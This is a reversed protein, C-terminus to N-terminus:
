EVKPYVSEIKKEIEGQISGPMKMNKAFAWKGADEFYMKMRYMINVLRIKIKAEEKAVVVEIPYAAAHAIGPCTLKKRSKDSGAKVIDFSKSAVKASSVGLIAVNENTLNLTYQHKLQWKGETSLVNELKSIVDDFDVDSIEAVNKIKENFPGGAMVGMTKGIHGKKRIPGYQKESATGKIVSQILKRISLRHSDSLENYAEDDLFITRNINAPNVISVHVGNEDEFVNIRDALAFPATLSNIQLLQKAYNPDYFVFVRTQYECKETSGQNIKAVFQFESSQIAQELQDSAEEFSQQINQVVFEYVGKKSEEAFLTTILSLILFLIIINTKFHLKM